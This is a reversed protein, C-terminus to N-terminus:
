NFNSSWKMMAALSRYFCRSDPWNIIITLYKVSTFKGFNNKSRLERLRTPIFRKLFGWLYNYYKNKFENVVNENQCVFWLIM